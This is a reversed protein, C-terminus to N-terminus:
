NIILVNVILYSLGILLLGGFIYLLNKRMKKIGDDTNSNFLMLYGQYIIICLIFLAALGLIYNIINFIIQYNQSNVGLIGNTKLFIKDTNKIIDAQKGYVAEVLTKALLIVVIWSAASVIINKAQDRAKDSPDTIYQITKILLTVFLWWMILYMALKLFPYIITNFIQEAYQNLSKDDSLQTLIGYLNNFLFEASVFIIIWVVGRIFYNIGKNRKEESNSVMIDMFGFTATLIALVIVLPFVYTKFLDIIFVVIGDVGAYPVNTEINEKIPDITEDLLSNFNAEPANGQLNDINVDNSIAGSPSPWAFSVGRLGISILGILFLRVCHGVLTARLKTAM